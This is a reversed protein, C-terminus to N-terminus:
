RATEKRLDSLSLGVRWLFALGTATVLLYMLMHCVVAYALGQEPTSGFEVLISAVAAEFTGIAGPAAPLASSAGAWSLTLVARPYDMLGGLGLARAGAWYLLADVTWLLLSLAAAQAAAAPRRLVAAGIALQEVLAHLKPWPRLAREVLGGKSVAGEAWALLGLAALAAALVTLALRRVAEPAYGPAAHAALTFIALLAAVDLAREVAVSALSALVPIQLRRAALAARALEGLRLFLVNNVGLGIAELRFLEALSAKPKAISLLVRWRLARVLLDLYVIGAMPILWAWRAQALARGLEAFDIGRLALWLFFATGALALLVPLGRRGLSM